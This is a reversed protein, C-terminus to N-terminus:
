DFNYDFRLRVNGFPKRFVYGAGAVKENRIFGETWTRSTSIDFEVRNRAQDIPSTADFFNHGYGLSVRVVDSDTNTRRLPDDNTRSDFDLQETAAFIGASLAGRSFVPVFKIAQARLAAVHGERRTTFIEGPGPYVIVASDFRSQERTWSPAATVLTGRRTFYPDDTTDFAWRLELALSESDSRLPGSFTGLNRERELGTSLLSATVTQRLTLPYGVTLQLAPDPNREEDETFPVSASASAFMRTGGLSYNSYALDITRVDGGQDLLKSVRAEAIGAGFFRRGGAGIRAINDASSRRRDSSSDADFFLSTMGNVELLLTSGDVVYRADFVFPLRRLRAVAVDLDADSYTRGEELASQPLVISAPVNGVVEIRSIVRAHLTSAFLLALFFLSLRKM